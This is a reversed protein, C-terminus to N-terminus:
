EGSSSPISIVAGDPLVEAGITAMDQRLQQLPPNDHGQHIPIVQTDEDITGRSRLEAITETFTRLNHHQDGKGEALGFTEELLVLDVRRGAVAALTAAPLVGTDTLYLVSASADSIRYVLAEGYAEHNATLAEVHYGAIEFSDGATVTRFTVTTQEPDLWRRSLDIVPAPGAFTLPTTSVWSRHMLLSPDLHDDHAHGVLIGTCGSLTRGYRSVQRPAEPGPDVLLRGDILISTPTRLEGRSRYDACTACTCFANPIGDSAGTGLLLIEM